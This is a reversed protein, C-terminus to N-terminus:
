DYWAETWFLSQWKWRETGDKRKKILIKKATSPNVTTYWSEWQLPKEQQPACARLRHAETVTSCPRIQKTAYPIKGSWPSSGTDGANAPLNKGMSYWSSAGVRDAKQLWMLSNWREEMHCTEHIVPRPAASWYPWIENRLVPSTTVKQGGHRTGRWKTLPPCLDEWGLTSQISSGPPAPLATWWRSFPQLALYFSYFEPEKFLELPHIRM